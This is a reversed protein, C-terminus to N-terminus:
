HLQLAKMDERTFELAAEGARAMQPDDSAAAAQEMLGRMVRLNGRSNTTWKALGMELIAELRFTKDEDNRAIHILDGIPPKVSSVVRRKGEWRNLIRTLARDWSRFDPLDERDPPPLEGSMHSMEYGAMAMIEVGDWRPLMRLNHKFMRHGFAWVAKGSMLGSRPSKRKAEAIVIEAIKIPAAEYSPVAVPEMAIFEDLFGATCSDRRMGELLRENLEDIVYPNPNEGKLESKKREYLEIVKRYSAAADGAEIPQYPLKRDAPLEQLKLLEPRSYEGPPDPTGRYVMWALLGIVIVLVVSLAIGIKMTNERDSGGVDRDPRNTASLKGSGGPDTVPGSLGIRFISVLLESMLVIYLVLSYRKWRQAINM